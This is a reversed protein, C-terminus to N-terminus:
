DVFTSCYKMCEVCVFHASVPILGSAICVEATADGKATLFTFLWWVEEAVRRLAGRVTAAVSHTATSCWSCHMGMVELLFPIKGIFLTFIFALHNHIFEIGLVCSGLSSGSNIFPEGTVKGRALNSIAWAATRAVSCCQEFEMLAGLKLEAAGSTALQSIVDHVSAELVRLLAVLCGHALLVFRYEDSDGAINGLAWCIKELLMKSSSSADRHVFVVKTTDDGGGSSGADAIDNTCCASILINLMNPVASLVEGTEAHDGTAINTLCRNM